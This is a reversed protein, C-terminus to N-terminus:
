LFMQRAVQALEIEPIGIADSEADIVRLTALARYLARDAPPWWSPDYRRIIRELYFAFVIVVLILLAHRAFIWPLGCKLGTGKEIGGVGSM